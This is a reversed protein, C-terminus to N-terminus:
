RITVGWTFTKADETPLVTLKDFRVYTVNSTAGSGSEVTLSKPLAAITTWGTIADYTFSPSSQTSYYYNWGSANPAAATINVNPITTTGTAGMHAALTQAPVKDIICVKTANSSGDNSTIITFTIVAGPVAAHADGTFKGSATKPADVTAIRTLSMKSTQICAATEDTSIFVGGYAIGDAGYYVGIPTNYSVSETTINLIAGDPSQGEVTSPFILQYVKLTQGKTMTPMFTNSPLSYQTPTGGAYSNWQGTSGEISVYSVWGTGVFGAAGTAFVWGGVYWSDGSNGENTIIYTFMLPQSPTTYTLDPLNEIVDWGYMAAVVVEKTGVIVTSKPSNSLDTFKLSCATGDATIVTGATTENPIDAFSVSAFACVLIFILAFLKIKVSYNDWSLVNL